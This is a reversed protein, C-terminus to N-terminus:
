QTVSSQPRRLICSVAFSFRFTGLSKTYTYDKYLCKVYECESHVHLTYIQTHTHTRTRTRTRTCTRTRTHTYTDTDTHKCTIISIRSRTTIIKAQTQTHTPTVAMIIYYCVIATYYSIIIFLIFSLSIQNNVVRIWM